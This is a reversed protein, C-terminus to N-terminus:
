KLGEIKYFIDIISVVCVLILILPWLLAVIFSEMFSPWSPDGYTGLFIIFAILLYIIFFIIMKNEKGGDELEGFFLKM